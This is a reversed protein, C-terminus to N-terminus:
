VQQQQAKRIARPKTQASLSPWYRLIEAETHVKKAMGLRMAPTKGDNGVEVFNYWVRFIELIKAVHGPDYPNSRYWKYGGSSASTGPRELYSLNFRVLAFFRDVAHLSGRLHLRALHEDDYDFGEVNRNTLYCIGKEPESMNPFPFILWRDKWKGIEKLAPMEATAKIVRLDHDKLDSYAKSSCRFEELERCSKAVLSLKQPNTLDKNIRVYFADCEEAVVRDCFAAMVAARLGSEQDCYFRVKEAGALMRSLFFFHGYLTYEAHVQMGKSPLRTGPEPLDCAEVDAREGVEKYTTAIQDTMTQKASKSRKKTKAQEYDAATWLRAFKRFPPDQEPDGCELAAEDTDYHDATPDYNVHLGFIYGTKLDASAVALLPTTRRDRQSIWNVEHQQRDVAIYLRKFHRQPFSRERNAAFLMCQRHILGLMDLVTSPAIRAYKATKRIGNKLMLLRFVEVSKGVKRQRLNAALPISFLKCCAKCRFRQSGAKTHGAAIYHNGGQALSVGNNVCKDTKCGVSEIPAFFAMMRQLEESIGQNSKIPVTEKCAQCYLSRGDKDGTRIYRDKRGKRASFGLPQAVTEAPMGFNVCAPNKCFNVQIGDAPLPVRVADVKKDAM